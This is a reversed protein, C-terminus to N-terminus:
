ADKLSRVKQIDSSIAWLKQIDLYKKTNTQNNKKIFFYCKLICSFHLFPQNKKKEKKKKKLYIFIM